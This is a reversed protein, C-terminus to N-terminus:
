IPCEEAHRIGAQSTAEVAVLIDLGGSVSQAGRHISM